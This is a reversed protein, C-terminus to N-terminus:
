GQAELEYPYVNIDIQKMNINKEYGKLAENKVYRYLNFLDNICLDFKRIDDASMEIGNSIRGLNVSLEITEVEKECVDCLTIQKKM